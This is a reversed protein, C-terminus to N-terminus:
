TFQPVSELLAEFLYNPVPRSFLYGQWQDCGYERLYQLQDETEVGEAVVRLQLSHGLEIIAPILSTSPSVNIESVFSRDIKLSDIPFKQIYSLSSYGTGFDDVAIKIGLEKLQSLTQRTSDKNGLLMSETIEIELWKGELQTQDLIDKVVVVFDPSELQRASINVSVVISLDADTQWTKAQRCATYLVWKGLDHIFRSKEALPIFIEPSIMGHNPHQWRLLAEVGTIANNKVDIKPQYYLIFEDEALAKHMDNNLSLWEYSKEAIGHNFILLDNGGKEKVKNMALDANKKLSQADKGHLPYFSIGISATLYFEIGNYEVPKEIERLLEEALNTSQNIESKSLLIIFEDGGLHAVVGSDGIFATIRNAMELIVADGLTSGYSTNIPKFQDLDVFLLSFQDNFRHAESRMKDILEDVFRRNPLNTLPDHHAMHHLVDRYRRETEKIKEEKQYHEIVLATLNTFYDMIKLESELPERKDHTYLAFTGVIDNDSSFLPISWCSHLNNALALDRYDQWLPDTVINSVIVTEKKFAATGCSGANPGISAGNIARNYAGPLSPAAGLYLKNENLLLISCLVDMAIKEVSHVINELVQELKAGATIMKLFEKQAELLIPYDKAEM